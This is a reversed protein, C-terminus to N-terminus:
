DSAQLAPTFGPETGVSPKGQPSFPPQLTCVSSDKQGSAQGPPVASAHSAWM